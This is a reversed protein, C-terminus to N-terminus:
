ISKSSQYKVNKGPSKSLKVVVLAAIGSVVALVGLLLGIGSPLSDALSRNDGVEEKKDKPVGFEDFEEESSQQEQALHDQVQPPAPSLQQKASNQSERQEGAILSWLAM